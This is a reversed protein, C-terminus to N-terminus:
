GKYWQDPRYPYMYGFNFHVTGLNPALNRLDNGVVVPKPLEGITGILTMNEQNIRILERGVEVYRETGPLLTKWERALDFLQRAWDPPEEGEAGSTQYWQRWKVGFLPSIDSYYPIYLDVNAILTPEYPVDWEMNIDSKGAKANERTAESTLEKANVNLGVAKLYDSMLKVFEANAFQSSYEWLITFPTGDPFTRFGDAGRAMGMEDLLANAKDPDYEIMYAHDEPQEFSLDAPMAQSPTGLGFYMVENMEQRNIALSVAQRFRLDGYVARLKPDIHTINFALSAGISGAPLLVKYNGRAENEKFTPYNPLENGQAKFDIEGNLIALAQLDANLFREHVRDIYPLQQGASDVKFYYPNAKFVRQQTDPVLEVVHAELTPVELAAASVTADDHWKQYYNTFWKTWDEFGAAQADANANPNYKPLFKEFFHRPAFTSFYSGSTAMYTLFGPFPEDFSIEVHTDDIARAHPNVGWETTTEPSLEKNQIIDEFFFVVDAATFPEGNSWKHGERLEFTIASYDDNWTWSRAVNPVITKLDDAIRVLVAQRWSLIDSTGSTPARSTGELTGGYTGCDEYPLIVLPQEPLREAVAPLTGASVEPAFLPNDTFTLTVGAAVVEEIEAQGAYASTLAMPDATTPCSAALAASALLSASFATSLVLAASRSRDRFSRPM